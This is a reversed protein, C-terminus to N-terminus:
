MRPMPKVPVDTFGARENPGASSAPPSASAFTQTNMRAGSTPPTSAATTYLKRSPLFSSLSYAIGRVIFFAYPSTRVGKKRRHPLSARCFQPNSLFLRFFAFFPTANERSIHYLLEQASLFRTVEPTCDRLFKPSRQKVLSNFIDRPPATTRWGNALSALTVSPWAALATRSDCYRTGMALFRWSFSIDRPPATPLEDPEYGSPRLNLDQGRLWISHIYRIQTVDVKKVSTEM